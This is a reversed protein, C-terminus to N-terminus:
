SSVTEAQVTIALVAFVLAGVAEADSRVREGACTLCQLQSDLVLAAKGACTDCVADTGPPFTISIPGLQM